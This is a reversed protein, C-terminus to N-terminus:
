TWDRVKATAEDLALGLVKAYDRHEPDVHAWLSKQVVSLDNV